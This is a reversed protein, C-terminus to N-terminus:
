GSFARHLLSTFLHEAQRLAELQVARLREVHQVLAAFRQQLPLAPVFVPMARLRGLTIELFTTGKIQQSIWHQAEPMRIQWLLFLKDVKPGPAIRATGQTLNAGDLTEPLVAVTGVTARISMVLDGFKVESRQYSDAIERTTRSLGEACIVGDILDGTKIYPVGNPIHPGAQVIGYTIGRDPQVVEELPKTPYERSARHRDGFLELFAVPLFTDTLELAYRRTRRLRDAQELREAIRRQEPLARYPVQVSEFLEKNIEAFTAGRGLAVITPTLFKLAFYGYVPDLRKNPIINKFGQNTCAPYATIACHGIPARSSFLISGAPLMATSCSDFGAKSIRKPTGHFYIGEHNSLDAPTIWPIDGDWFQPVGTKPTSGSVIEGLERLPITQTKV